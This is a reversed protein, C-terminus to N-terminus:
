RRCAAFGDAYSTGGRCVIDRRDPVTCAAVEELKYAAEEEDESGSSLHQRLQMVAPPRPSLGFAAPAPPLVVQWTAALASPAVAALATSPPPPPVAVLTPAMSSSTAADDAAVAKVRGIAMRMQQFRKRKAEKAKKAVRSFEAKTPETYADPVGAEACWRMWQEEESENSPAASSSELQQTPQTAM